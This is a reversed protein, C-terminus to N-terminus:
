IENPPKRMPSGALSTTKLYDMAKKPLDSSPASKQLARALRRVLMALEDAAGHTARIRQEADAIAKDTGHADQYHGGDRHIVALLNGLKRSADRDTIAAQMEADRRADATTYWPM